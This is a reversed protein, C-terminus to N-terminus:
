HHTLNLKTKKGIHSGPQEDTSQTYHQCFTEGIGKVIKMINEMPNRMCSRHFLVPVWNGPFFFGLSGVNRRELIKTRNLKSKLSWLEIRLQLGLCTFM